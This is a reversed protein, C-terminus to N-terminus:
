RRRGGACRGIPRAAAPGRLRRRARRMRRRRNRRIRFPRDEIDQAEQRVRGMMTLGAQVAPCGMRAAPTVGAGATSGSRWRWGAPHAWAKNPRGRSAQPRHEDGERDEGIHDHVPEVEADAEQERRERRALLAVNRHVRDRRHPVAVLGPEHEAAAAEEGGERESIRDDQRGEVRRNDGHQQTEDEAADGELEAPAIGAMPRQPIDSECAAREDRGERLPSASPASSWPM